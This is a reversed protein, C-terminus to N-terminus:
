HELFLRSKGHDSGIYGGVWGGPPLSPCSNKVVITYSSSLAPQLVLVVICICQVVRSSMSM